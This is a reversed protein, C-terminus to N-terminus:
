SEFVKKVTSLLEQSTFPKAIYADFGYNRFDSMVPDNSYGSIVIAKFALGQERIIRIAEMGGMGGPITLDAIILDVPSGSSAMKEFLDIAEGGEAVTFIKAGEDTLVENMIYRLQPEDDMIMISLNNLNKESQILASVLLESNKDACSPLYITFVSGKGVASEVGIGGGHRKIISHCITLGLGNGESKTTFYPDFIRKLNKSEIGSGEDKIEIAVYDGEPISLSNSEAVYKNKISITIEGGSPMSQSANLIINQIVQSIQGRDIEAKSFDTEINYVLASKSGSMIFDASDMVVDKLDTIQKVPTGGKSFALLQETLGRARLGAKEAEGLLQVAKEKKDIKIRALSIYGVIASLINNFDHAIGGAFIGLSELKHSRVTEEDRIKKESINRVIALFKTEGLMVLRSDFFLREGEIELNYEYSQMLGTKRVLEIKKVTLEALDAPLVDSINKGIFDSPGIYLDSNVEAKYDIFNYDSDFIFLLDPNATLLAGNKEESFKLKEITEKLESTKTRVRIILYFTIIIMIIAFSVAGILAPIIYTSLNYFEFFKILTNNNM